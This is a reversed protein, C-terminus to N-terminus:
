TVREKIQMYISVPAYNPWWSGTGPTKGLLALQAITIMLIHQIM